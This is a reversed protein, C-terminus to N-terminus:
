FNLCKKFDKNNVSTKVIIKREEEETKVDICENCM